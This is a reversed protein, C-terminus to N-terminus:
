PRVYITNRHAPRFGNAQYFAAAPTDRGTLLYWHTVDPIRTALDDLLRTGIGQRQHDPHVCMEQLLFHDTTGHRELHGIAFGTLTGDPGTTHTHHARPTTLMDHLRQRADHPHWTENWPPRTFTHVYLHTYADLM